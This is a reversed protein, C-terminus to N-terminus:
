ETVSVVPCNVIINTSTINYNKEYIEQYSTVTNAVYDDPVTVMVMLLFDNYGPDGPIVDIVNLQGEVPTEEEEKDCSILLAIIMSKFLFVKRLDMVNM